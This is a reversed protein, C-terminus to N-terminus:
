LRRGNSWTRKARFNWIPELEGLSTATVGPPVFTRLRLLGNAASLAVDIFQQGGHDV